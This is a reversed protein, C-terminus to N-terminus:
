DVPKQCQWCLEFGAPNQEKCYSCQWVSTQQASKEYAIVAERATEVHKPSVWVPTYLADLPLEGIGGGLLQSSVGAEIGQQRLLGAILEAEMSNAATYIKVWDSKVQM